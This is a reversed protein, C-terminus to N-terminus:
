NILGKESLLIDIKLSYPAKLASVNISSVQYVNFHYSAM